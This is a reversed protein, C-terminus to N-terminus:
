SHLDNMYAQDHFIHLKTNMIKVAAARRRGQASM